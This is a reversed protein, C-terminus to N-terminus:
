TGDNGFSSWEERLAFRDADGEDNKSLPARLMGWKSKGPTMMTETGSLSGSERWLGPNRESLFFAIRQKKEQCYIFAVKGELTEKFREEVQCNEEREREREGCRKKKEEGRERGRNASSKVKAIRFESSYDLERNELFAERSM